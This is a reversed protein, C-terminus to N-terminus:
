ENVAKGLNLAPEIKSLLLTIKYQRLNARGALLIFVVLVFRVGDLDKIILHYVLVGVGV